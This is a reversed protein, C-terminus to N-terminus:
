LCKKECVGLRIQMEIFLYIFVKDLWTKNQPNVQKISLNCFVLKNSCDRVILITKPSSIYFSSARMEPMRYLQVSHSQVSFM